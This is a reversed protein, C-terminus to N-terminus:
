GLFMLLMAGTGPLLYEIELYPESGSNDASYLSVSNIGTPATGSEHDGRIEFATIGGKNIQNVPIDISFWSGIAPLDAYNKTAIQTDGCGWDGTDLTGWDGTDRYLQLQVNFGDANDKNYLRLWLKARAIVVGSPIVSTDFRLYSRTICYTPAPYWNEAGYALVSTNGGIGLTTPPYTSGTKILYGDETGQKITIIAM